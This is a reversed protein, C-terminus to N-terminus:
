DGAHGCAESLITSASNVLVYFWSGAAAQVDPQQGM